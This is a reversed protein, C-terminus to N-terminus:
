RYYQVAALPPALSKLLEENADVFEGYTDVAHSELLVSFGYAEKPSVIYRCAHILALYTVGCVASTQYGLTPHSPWTELCLELAYQPPLAMGQPWTHTHFSMLLAHVSPLCLAESRALLGACWPQGGAKGVEIGLLYVAGPSGSGRM